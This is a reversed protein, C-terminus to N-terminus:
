LKTAIWYSLPIRGNATDQPLAPISKWKWKGLATLIKQSIERFKEQNWESFNSSFFLHGQPSVVASALELLHALDKKISFVGVEKSRSFSPPDVIVLDFLNQKKKARELFEFCDQAVFRHDQVPLANLEFNRKGWELYKKSLDVSTTVAQHRACAVSFACTYSFLNLVKKHQALEALHARNERQDLFLGTSYGAYPQIEYKLGREQCVMKETAPTGLFPKESYYDETAAQHSRDTVFVKKYVSCAGTQQMLAEAIKLLQPESLECEGSFVQMVLTKEYQEVVLGPFGERNGNLLRFCNTGKNTEAVLFAAKKKLVTEIKSTVDCV